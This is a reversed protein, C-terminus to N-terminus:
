TTALSGHHRTSETTAAVPFEPAHPELVEADTPYDSTPAFKLKAIGVLINFAYFFKAVFFLLAKEISQKKFFVVLFGGLGLTLAILRTEFSPIAALVATILLGIGFFAATPMRLWCFELGYGNKFAYGVTRTTGGLRGAALSRSLHTFLSQGSLDETCRTHVAMPVPLMRLRWGARRLRLAIDAEEEALLYPNFSGVDLIAKRRYFCCGGRMWKVDIAHEPRDEFVLRTESGDNADDLFGCVGAIKEDEAFTALATSVFNPDVLTDADIFLIFDGTAHHTGIYRGASASLEWDGRLRVVKAGNILALQATSDTSASDAVIIEAGGISDAARTAARLTAAIKAEENRAVIVISVKPKM